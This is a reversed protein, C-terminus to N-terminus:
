RWGRCAECRLNKKNSVSTVTGNEGCWTDSMNWIGQLWWTTICDKSRPHPVCPCMVMWCWNPLWLKNQLFMEDNQWCLGWRSIARCRIRSIRMWAKSSRSAAALPQQGFFLVDNSGSIYERCAFDRCHDSRVWVMVWSKGWGVEHLQPTGSIIGIVVCSYINCYVPVSQM